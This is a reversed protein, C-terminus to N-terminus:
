RTPAGGEVSATTHAQIEARSLNTVLAHAGDAASHYLSALPVNYLKGGKVVVATDGEVSQVTGISTGSTDKIEAGARVQERTALTLKSTDVAKNVAADAHDVVDSVPQTVSNLTGGVVNGTNAGVQVDAAGGVGLQALAPVAILAAGAALTAYIKRM